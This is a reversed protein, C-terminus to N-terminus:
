VSRPNGEGSTKHYIDYNYIFTSRKILIIFYNLYNIRYIIYIGQSKDAPWYRINQLENVPIKASMDFTHGFSISTHYPKSDYM